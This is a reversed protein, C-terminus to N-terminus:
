QPDCVFEFELGGQEGLEQEGLEQEGLGGEVLVEEEQHQEQLGPDPVEQQGRAEAGPLM